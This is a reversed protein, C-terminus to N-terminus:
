RTKKHLSRTEFFAKVFLFNRGPLFKRKTLANKKNQGFVKYRHM